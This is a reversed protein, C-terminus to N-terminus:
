DLPHNFAREFEVVMLPDVIIKFDLTLFDMKERDESSALLFNEVRSAFSLGFSGVSFVLPLAM